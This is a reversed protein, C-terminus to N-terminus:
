SPAKKQKITFKIKIFVLNIEISLSMDIKQLQKRITKLRRAALRRLRTSTKRLYKM